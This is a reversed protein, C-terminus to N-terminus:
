QFRAKLSVLEDDVSMDFNLKEGNADYGLDSCPMANECTLKCTGDWMLTWIIRDTIRRRMLPGVREDYDQVTENDDDDVVAVASRKKVRKIISSIVTSARKAATRKEVLKM